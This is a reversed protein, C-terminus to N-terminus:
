WFGYVLFVRSHVIIIIEIIEQWYGRWSILFMFGTAWILHALLFVWSWVSVDNIGLFSYGNILSGSNFWLYDRFWGGLYSSGDTFQFFTNFYLTIHRWHFYFDLWAITNFLWFVSLYFSDWFSLDCTGGRDPGDCPFSYGFAVKDM